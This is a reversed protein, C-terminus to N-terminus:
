NKMFGSILQILFFVFLGGYLLEFILIVREASSKFTSVRGTETPEEVLGAKHLETFIKVSDDFYNESDRAKKRFFEQAKVGHAVFQRWARCLFWGAIPLGILMIRGALNEAGRTFILGIAALFFGHITLMANFRSYIEQSVLGILQVAKEYALKPDTLSM